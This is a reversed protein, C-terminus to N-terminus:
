LGGKAKNVAARVVDLTGQQAGPAHRDLRMITAEALELALLMEPAASILRADADSYACDCIRPCFKSGDYSTEVQPGYVSKGALSVAWPGPTHGQKQHRSTVADVAGEAAKIASDIRNM